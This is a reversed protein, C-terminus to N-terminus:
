FWIRILPNNDLGLHPLNPDGIGEQNTDKGEYDSWYNGKRSGNDWLGVVM